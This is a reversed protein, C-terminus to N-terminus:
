GRTLGVGWRMEELCRNGHGAWGTVVVDGGLPTKEDVDRVRGSQIRDGVGM